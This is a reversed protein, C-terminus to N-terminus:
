KDTVEAAPVTRCGHVGTVLVTDADCGCPLSGSPTSIPAQDEPSVPLGDDTDVAVGATKAEAQRTKVIADYAKGLTEIVTKLTLNGDDTQMVVADMLNRNGAEYWANRLKARTADDKLTPHGNPDLAIGTNDIKVITALIADVASTTDIAEDLQLQPTSSAPQDPNYGSELDSIEEALYFGSMIDPCYRRAARSLARWFLMDTAYNAWPSRKKETLGAGIAEGITWSASGSNHGDIRDIAIEAERESLKVITVKHGARMILALALRGRMTPVGTDSYILNGLATPVAIDLASAMMILNLMDGPNRFQSPITWKAQALLSALNTLSTVDQMPPGSYRGMMTMERHVDATSPVPAVTTDDHM